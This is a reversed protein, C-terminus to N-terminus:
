QNPGQLRAWAPVGPGSPVAQREAGVDLQERWDARGRTIERGIRTYGRFHPSHVMEIALKEPEPLDFFRRAQRMVEGTLEPTVGHGVVYFFGIRRAIARLEALFDLRSRLDADLRRLDLVPLAPGEGHDTM